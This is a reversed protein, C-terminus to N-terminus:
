YAEQEVAFKLLAHCRRRSVRLSAGNFVSSLRMVQALWVAGLDYLLSSPSRLYTERVNKSRSVYSGLGTWDATKDM